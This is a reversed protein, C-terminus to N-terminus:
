ATAKERAMDILKDFVTPDAVALDALMKRDLDIQAIKLGQIFRSYTFGRQRCAAGIRTIWLRRFDRKRRRRDRYAFVRARDVTEKATRYLRHRGGVYGKAAKLIRKKARLRAPGKLVRPM